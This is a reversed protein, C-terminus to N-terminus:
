DTATLIELVMGPSAYDYWVTSNDVDCYWPIFSQEILDKIAPSTSECVTYKMYQCNGCTERGGLLLIYKRQAKAVSVATEKSTKWVLNTSAISSGSWLSVMLVLVVPWRYSKV